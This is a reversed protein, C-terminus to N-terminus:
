FRIPDGMLEIPITNSVKIKHDVIRNAWSYAYVLVAFQLTLTIPIFYRM